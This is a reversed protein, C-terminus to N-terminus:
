QDGGAVATRRATVIEVCGLWSLEAEGHVAKGGRRPVDGDPAGIEEVCAIVASSASLAGFQCTIPIYRHRAGRRRSGREQFSNVLLGPVLSEPHIKVITADVVRISRFLTTYPFLTSRPPRRIM